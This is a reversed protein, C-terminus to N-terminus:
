SGSKVVFYQLIGTSSFPTAVTPSDGFGGFHCLKPLDEKM